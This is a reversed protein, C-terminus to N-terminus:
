SLRNRIRSAKIFDFITCTSKQLLRSFWIAFYESPDYKDDYYNPDDYHPIQSIWM